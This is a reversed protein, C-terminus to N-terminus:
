LEGFPVMAPMKEPHPGIQKEMWVMHYWRGFKYACQHFQGVMRYGLKEHFRVSDKTLYADEEEPYAICAAVNVIGQRLLIRELEGYLACGIGRGRQDMRVYISTEVSWDYAPREHLPGAYVYVLIGTDDEAALYPYRELTHAVRGAFAEVSPVEYEFTVATKLIYPAYIDLLARADEPTVPRIIIDRREHDSVGARYGTEFHKDYLKSLEYDDGLVDGVVILATRTIRNEEALKCLEGLRGRVVKEDEWTAKYVIACPTEQTYGGRLLEEQVQATMGSSLFLVMTAGHVALLHLQEREPVPTRGEMRTIIVSQSVGPLTYEARLAAAAGCFSSVGPCVNYSIGRKELADMQERVAGYLSPDGTHLRVTHKGAAEMEEMVRLVQELHMTASNYIMCDKKTYTLLEPNVLSGAYIVCDAEQLLKRGRVTILDAAGPGAGVFDVM